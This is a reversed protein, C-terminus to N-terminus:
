RSVHELREADALSGHWFEDREIGQGWELEVSELDDISFYGLEPEYIVCLGFARREVPDYETMYWTGPGCPNFFKAVVPVDNRAKRENAYLKPASALIEPTILRTTSSNYQGALETKM